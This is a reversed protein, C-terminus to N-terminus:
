LVFKCSVCGTASLVVMCPVISNVSDSACLCMSMTIVSTVIYATTNYYLFVHILLPVTTFLLFRANCTKKTLQKNNQIFSVSQAKNYMFQQLM